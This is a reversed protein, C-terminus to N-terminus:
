KNWEHLFEDMSQGGGEGDRDENKLTQNEETLREIRVCALRILYTMSGRTVTEWEEPSTETIGIIRELRNVTELEIDSMTKAM